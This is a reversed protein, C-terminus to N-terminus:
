TAPFSCRMPMAVGRLSRLLMVLPAEVGADATFAESQRVVKLRLLHPEILFILPLDTPAFSFRNSKYTGLREFMDGHASLLLKFLRSAVLEISVLPM